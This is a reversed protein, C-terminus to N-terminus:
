RSFRPWRGLLFLLLLLPRRLLLLLSRLLLFLLIFFRRTQLLGEKRKPAHGLPTRLSHVSPTGLPAAIALSVASDVAAARVFVASAPSGPESRSTHATRGGACRGNMGAFIEHAVSEVYSLDADGKETAPTSVAIFRRSEGANRLGPRGFV